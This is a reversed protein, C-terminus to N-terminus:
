IMSGLIEFFDDSGMIQGVLVEFFREEPMRLRGKVSCEWVIGVRYGSVLLQDFQKRDRQQNRTIKTRWFEERTKPCKFLHCDHRHWFCGHIFLCLRHKALYLDPTGPLNRNHLRFRLGARHLGSRVYLEPRTNTSKVSALNHHRASM